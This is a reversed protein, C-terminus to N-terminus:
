HAGPLLEADLMPMPADKALRLPHLVRESVNVEYLRREEFPPGFALSEGTANWAPPYCFNDFRGECIQTAGSEVDVLAMVSEFAPEYKPLPFMPRRPADLPPNAVTSGGIAVTHGDPSLTAFRYWYAVEPHEVRCLPQEARALLAPGNWEPSVEVNPSLSEAVATEASSLLRLQGSLDPSLRYWSPGCRVALAAELPVIESIGEPITRLAAAPETELTETDVWSLFPKRDTYGLYRTVRM